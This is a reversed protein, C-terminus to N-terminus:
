QSSFRVSVTRLLLEIGHSNVETGMNTLLFDGSVSVKELLPKHNRSQQSDQLFEDSSLSDSALQKPYLNTTGHSKVTKYSNTPLSDSALQKPYLNTTGHSNVTKYSNTPLSDSALQRPYLNTTGHSNVTKYSNTPLSDSALQRPYLNGM